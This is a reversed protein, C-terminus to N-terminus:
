DTIDKDNDNPIDVVDNDHSNDTVNNDHPKRHRPEKIRFESLNDYQEQAIQRVDKRDFGTEKKYEKELNLFLGKAAYILGEVTKEPIGQEGYRLENAFYLNRANIAIFEHRKGFDPRITAVVACLSGMDHSHLMDEDGNGNARIIAKLSKEIAQQTHYAAMNMMYPNGKVGDSSRMIVEATMIDAHILELESATVPKM